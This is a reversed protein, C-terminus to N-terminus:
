VTGITKNYKGNMYEKRLRIVEEMITKCENELKADIAMKMVNGHCNRIRKGSGCPCALHGRYSSQSIFSVIDFLVDWEDVGFLEKLYELNGFVGHSREGFPYVDYEEYYRYTYLYPVIYKEIFSCIDPEQSFFMKLELDSALCLQGNEYRHPYDDGICGSLERVIPIKTPFRNSVTIELDFEGTMHVDNFVHNLTFQGIFVYGDKCRTLKFMPYKQLVKEINKIVM